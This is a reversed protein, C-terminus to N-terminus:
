VRVLSGRAGCDFEGEGHYGEYDWLRAPAQQRLNLSPENPFRAREQIPLAVRVERGDGEVGARDRRGRGTGFLSDLHPKVSENGLGMRIRNYNFFVICDCGWHMLVSNVLKLSLGKYGWPDVFFLTPVFKTREFDKVIEEGVTENHVEPKYKLTEIGPLEDIASELSRVYEADFDNFITVLMSRLKPDKIAQELILLPTSKTGDDFRGPGAFLDLYAIRENPSLKRTIIAAWAGFYKSVIASKVESQERSAEFFKRDAM